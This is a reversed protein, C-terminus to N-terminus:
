VAMETDIGLVRNETDFVLSLTYGNTSWVCVSGGEINRKATCPGVATVIDDYHMGKMDGLEKFKRALNQAPMKQIFTYIGFLILIIAVGMLYSSNM